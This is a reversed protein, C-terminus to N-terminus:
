RLVKSEWRLIGELHPGGDEPDPATSSKHRVQLLTFSIEAATVERM